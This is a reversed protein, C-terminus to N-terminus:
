LTSDHKNVQTLIKSQSTRGMNKTLIKISSTKTNLFSCRSNSHDSIKSIKDHNGPNEVM